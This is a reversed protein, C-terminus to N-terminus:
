VTRTLRACQMCAHALWAAFDGSLTNRSLSPTKVMERERVCVCVYNLRVQLRQQLHSNEEEEKELQRKLAEVSSEASKSREVVAPQVYAAKTQTATSKGDVEGVAETTLKALQAVAAQVRSRWADKERSSEPDDSRSAEHQRRTHINHTNLNHQTNYIYIHTHTYQRRTHIHTQTINHIICIYIYIYIYIYIIDHMYQNVCCKRMTELEGVERETETESERKCIYM